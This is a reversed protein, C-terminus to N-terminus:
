KYILKSREAFIERAVDMLEGASLAAVKRYIEETTDVSGHVLFSKGAGLMYGENSEMSIALQAVFQRKAISLQRATLPTTMLKDMQENILELAKQTNGSESSFYINVIGTDTYPTYNAEVNYTLGHKERVVMNLLSNASPGGLINVLLLLPLRRPDVISYASCGMMCHTQHTRKNVEESFAPVAVSKERQFSRTSAEVDGFYREAVAVIRKPSINGISSFIMEDTTYTRKTFDRITDGSFRKIDKKIGLINHGLESGAFIKEEFTDYILESPSDKYTNIEDYIVEKEREMEASPYTSHFAVDAILEVAKMFDGRLTTAHITTDEKTTFANLEGGLNELRCNIHYARRHETGKFLAHEAYHALGFEGAREDRTGANILLGCHTVSSRIQRHIGRIGNPLSYTYFEEM